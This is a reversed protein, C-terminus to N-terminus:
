GPITANVVESWPGKDGRSNVWRLWYFVTQGGQAIDYEVLYPTATDTAVYALDSISAPAPGGVKSWIECGHVGAPRARRQPAAADRFDIIHSLRRSTDVTALPPTAPVPAPTHSIDRVHLGISTRITDTMLPSAQLQKILPRLLIELAARAANKRATAATTATAPDEYATYAQTWEPMAGNLAAVAAADLGYTVANASIFTVIPNLWNNFDADPRPFIDTAM